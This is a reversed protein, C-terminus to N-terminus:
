RWRGAVAAARDPPPEPGDDSSSSSSRSAIRRSGSHERQRPAIRQGIQSVPLAARSAYVADSRLALRITVTRGSEDLDAPLVNAIWALVSVASLDEEVKPSDEISFAAFLDADTLGGDSASGQTPATLDSVPHM